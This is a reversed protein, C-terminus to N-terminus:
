GPSKTRPLVSRKSAESPEPAIPAPEPRDFGAYRALAPM